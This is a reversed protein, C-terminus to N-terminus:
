SVNEGTIESHFPLDELEGWDCDFMIYDCGLERAKVFCTWLDAPYEGDPAHTASPFSTNDDHAYVFWGYGGVAGYPTGDQAGALGTLDGAALWDRTEKTLHGTSLALMKRIEPM